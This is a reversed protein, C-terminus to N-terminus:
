ACVALWGRNPHAHVASCCLCLCLGLHHGRMVAGVGVHTDACPTARSVNTESAAVANLATDVEEYTASRHRLPNHMDVWTCVSILLYIRMEVVKQYALGSVLGYSGRFTAHDM